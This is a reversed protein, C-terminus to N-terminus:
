GEGEQPNVDWVSKFYGVTIPLIKVRVDQDESTTSM